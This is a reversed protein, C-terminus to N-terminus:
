HSVFRSIKFYHNSMAQPSPSESDLIRTTFKPVLVASVFINFIWSNSIVANADSFCAGQREAVM